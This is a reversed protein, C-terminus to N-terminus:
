GRPVAAREVLMGLEERAATRLATSAASAFAKIDFGKVDGAPSSHDVVDTVANVAAAPAAPAAAAEAAEPTLSTATDTM